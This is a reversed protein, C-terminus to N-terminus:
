IPHSFLGLDKCILITNKMNEPEFPVQIYEVGPRADVLFQTVNEDEHQSEDSGVQSTTSFGDNLGDEADEELMNEEEQDTLVEREEEKEIVFHIIKVTASTTYFHPDPRIRDTVMEILKNKTCLPKSHPRLAAERSPFFAWNISSPDRTSSSSSSSLIPRGHSFLILAPNDDGRLEPLNNLHQSLKDFTLPPPFNLFDIRDYILEAFFSLTEGARLRPSGLEVDNTLDAIYVRNYPGRFSVTLQNLSPIPIALSEDDELASVVEDRQTASSRPILSFSGSSSSVLQDTRPDM